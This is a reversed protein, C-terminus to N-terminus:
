AIAGAGREASQRTQGIHIGSAEARDAKAEASCGNQFQRAAAGVELSHDTEV